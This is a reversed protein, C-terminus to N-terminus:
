RAAATSAGASAGRRWAVATAVIAAAAVAALIWGWPTGGDAPGAPAQDAAAAAEAAPNFVEDVQAQIPKVDIGELQSAPLGRIGSIAQRFARQGEPNLYLWEYGSDTRARISQASPIYAVSWHELGGGEGPHNMWLKVRYWSAAEAPPDTPGRSEAFIMLNKHDSKDYTTCKGAAGCVSVKSIEKAAAAAPIALAGLALAIPVLKRTM